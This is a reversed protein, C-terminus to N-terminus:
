QKLAAKQEALTEHARHIVYARLAESDEKNLENAFGVMGRDKRAGGLVISEWVAVDALVPLGSHLALM